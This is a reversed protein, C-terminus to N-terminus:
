AKELNIHTVDCRILNVCNKFKSFERFYDQLHFAKISPSNCKWMTYFHALRIFVHGVLCADYSADHEKMGCSESMNDIITPQYILGKICDRNCEKYLNLLTSGRLFDKYKKDTKLEVKINNLIHRTDYIPPFEKAVMKKFDTYSDPLSEFFKEYIFLIDMLLNHGVIPKKYKRMLRIIHTFGIAERLKQNASHELAQLFEEKAEATAKRIIFDSFEQPQIEPILDDFQELVDYRLIEQMGPSMCDVNMTDGIRSQFSWKTLHNLKKQRFNSKVDNLVIDTACKVKPKNDEQLSLIEKENLYPVGGYFCKNFDFDFKMLFECASSEFYTQRSISQFDRPFLSFNYTNSHYTRTITDYCFISIGCQLVTFEKCSQSLIKYREQPTDFLSISPGNHTHLGSFEFDLCTFSAKKLDDEVKCLTEGFNQITVDIM